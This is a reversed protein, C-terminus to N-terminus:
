RGRAHGDPDGGGELVGRERQEDWECDRAPAPPAAEGDRGGKRRDREERRAREEGDVEALRDAVHAADLAEATLAPEAELVVGRRRDGEDVPEPVPHTGHEDDGEEAENEREHVPRVGVPDEGREHEDVERRENREVRVEVPVHQREHGRESRERAPHPRERRHREEEEDNREHPRDALGARERPGVRPDDRM